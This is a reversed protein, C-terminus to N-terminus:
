GCGIELVKEGANLINLLRLKREFYKSMSQFHEDSENHWKRYQYAYDSTPLATSLQPCMKAVERHMLLQNCVMLLAVAASQSPRGLKMASGRVASASELIAPALGNPTILM